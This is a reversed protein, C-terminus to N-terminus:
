DPSQSLRSSNADGMNAFALKALEDRVREHTVGLTEALAAQRAEIEANVEVHKL